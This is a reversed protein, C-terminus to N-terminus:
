VGKILLSNRGCVQGEREANQEFIQEAGFVAAVDFLFIHLSEGFPVAPRLRIFFDGECGAANQQLIESADGADHIKGGHAVGHFL